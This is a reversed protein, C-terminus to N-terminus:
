QKKEKEIKITKTEGISRTKREEALCFFGKAACIKSVQLPVLIKSAPEVRISSAKALVVKKIIVSDGPQKEAVGLYNESAETILLKWCLVERETIKWM